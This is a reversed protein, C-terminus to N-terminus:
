RPNITTQKKSMSSGVFLVFFFVGLVHCSIMADRNIRTNLTDMLPRRQFPLIMWLNVGRCCEENTEIRGIRHRLFLNCAM